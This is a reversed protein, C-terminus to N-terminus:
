EEKSTKVPGKGMIRSLHYKRYLQPCMTSLSVAITGATRPTQELIKALASILLEIEAEAPTATALVPPPEPIKQDLFRIYEMVEKYTQFTVTREISDVKETVSYPTVMRLEMGDPITYPQCQAMAKQIEEQTVAPAQKIYERLTDAMEEREKPSNM